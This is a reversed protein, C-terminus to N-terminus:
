SQMPYRMGAPHAVRPESIAQYVEGTTINPFPLSAELNNDNCDIPIVDASAAKQPVTEVLLEAKSEQSANDTHVYM